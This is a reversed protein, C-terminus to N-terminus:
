TLGLGARCPEKLLDITLPKKKRRRRPLIRRLHGALQLLVAILHTLCGLVEAIRDLFRRVLKVKRPRSRGDLWPGGTLLLWHQVLVALLKALVEVLVRDARRGRSQDLAGVGKWLKFLLEIQWRVRYLVWAEEFALQQRGLDTAFVTWGCLERQRESAIRGKKRVKEMLKRLRAQRIHEPCRVAVLRCSLPQQTGLTVWADVGDASQQRLYDALGLAPGHGERVQVSSPVRSIWHVGRQTDQAMVATDFFGLDKLRLAGAPLPAAQQGALVDPQRGSWLSVETVAGGSVEQRVFIKLAAQDRGETDNGGCGPYQEALNATLAVTTCDEVYVGAFRQLLPLATRETELLAHVARQILAQLCEAGAPCFWQDLAQPTISVNFRAAWDALDIL